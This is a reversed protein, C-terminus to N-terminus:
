NHASRKAVFSKLNVSPDALAVPDPRASAAILMEALRIEKAISTGTGVGAASILRGDTTLGFEILGGDPRSRTAVAAAEDPMGAVQLGLEYQDSWFWPVVDYVTDYGTLTAAVVRAQDHANRWTELRIRRGNFLPHPFSCCDGIAFISPDSTRLHSDVKIGNDIELGAEAALETNPVSGVGAILVDLTLRSGDSLSVAYAAGDHAVNVVGVGCRLDVCAERHRTAFRQAIAPPVARSMVSEAFEIVTVDCRRQRASAALELGILGGGIVGVRAAPVLRDRLVAADELTRLTIASDAGDFPLQRARAGTALVLHHYASLSGDSLEVRKALRDISVARVGLLLTVDLERCRQATLVTVPESSTADTLAQKSLPPREYPPSTEAGVLTIAGAFGRARLGLAAAAGCEGAGVIVVPGPTVVVGV